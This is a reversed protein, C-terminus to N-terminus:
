AAAHVKTILTHLWSEFGAALLRPVSCADPILQKRSVLSDDEIGLSQKYLKNLKSEHWEM